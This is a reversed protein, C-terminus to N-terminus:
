CTFVWEGKNDKTRKANGYPIIRLAVLKDIGETALAKKLSTTIFQNCYPCLSEVYMDVTLREAFVVGLVLLIMLKM